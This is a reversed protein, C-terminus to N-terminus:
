SSPESPKQGSFVRSPYLTFLCDCAGACDRTEEGIHVTYDIVYACGFVKTVNNLNAGSYNIPSDTKM